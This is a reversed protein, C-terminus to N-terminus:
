NETVPENIATHKPTMNKKMLDNQLLLSENKQIEVQGM